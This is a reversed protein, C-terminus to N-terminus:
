RVPHAGNQYGHDLLLEAVGLVSIGVKSVMIVCVNTLLMADGVPSLSCMLM